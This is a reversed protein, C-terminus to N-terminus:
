LWEWRRNCYFPENIRSISKGSRGTALMVARCKIPLSARQKLM